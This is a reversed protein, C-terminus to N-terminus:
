TALIGSLIVVQFQASAHRVLFTFGPNGRGSASVQSESSIPDCNKSFGVSRPQWHGWGLRQLRPEKKTPLLPTARTPLLAPSWWRPIRSCPLRDSLYGGVHRAGEECFRKRSRSDRLSQEIVGADSVAHVRSSEFRHGRAESPFDESCIRPQTPEGRKVVAIFGSGPRGM